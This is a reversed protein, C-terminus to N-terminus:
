RESRGIITFPKSSEDVGHGGVVVGLVSVVVQGDILEARVIRTAIPAGAVANSRLSKFGHRARFIVLFRELAAWLEVVARCFSRDELRVTRHHGSKRAPLASTLRPM